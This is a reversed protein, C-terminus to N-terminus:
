RWTRHKEAVWESGDYEQIEWEIGAPVEVVRLNTAETGLAEVAAVLKPDDRHIGEGYYVDGSLPEIGMHDTVAKSLQFLGYTTYIVVKQPKPGTPRVYRTIPEVLDDEDNPNEWDYVLQNMTSADLVINVDDSMIVAEHVSFDSDEDKRYLVSFGTCPKQINELSM